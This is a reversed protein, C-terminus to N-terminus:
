NIKTDELVLNDGRTKTKNLSPMILSFKLNKNLVFEILLIITPCIAIYMKDYFTKHIVNVDSLMKKYHCIEEDSIHKKCCAYLIELAYQSLQQMKSIIVFKSNHIHRRTTRTTRTTTRTTTGTTTPTTTKSIQGSPDSNRNM